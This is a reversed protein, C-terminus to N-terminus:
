LAKRTKDGRMFKMSQDWYPFPPPPSLAANGKFRDHENPDYPYAQPGPTDSSRLGVQKLVELM